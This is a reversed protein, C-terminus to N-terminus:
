IERRPDAQALACAIRRTLGAGLKFQKLVAEFQMALRDRESARRYAESREYHQALADIEDWSITSMM